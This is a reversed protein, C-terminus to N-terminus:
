CAATRFQIPSSDSDGSRESIPTLSVKRTVTPPAPEPLDSISAGFAYEEKRLKQELSSSRSSAGSSSTSSSSSSAFLTITNDQTRIISSKRRFLSSSANSGSSASRKQEGPFEFSLSKSRGLSGTRSSGGSSLSRFSVGDLDYDYDEPVVNTEDLLNNYYEDDHEDDEANGDNRSASFNYAPIHPIKLVLSPRRDGGTSSSSSSSSTKSNESNNKVVNLPGVPQLIPPDISNDGYERFLHGCDEAVGDDDLNLEDDLDGEEDDYYYYNEQYDEPSTQPTPKHYNVSLNRGIDQEEEFSFMSRADSEDKEKQGEPDPDPDPTPEISVDNDEEEVTPVDNSVKEFSDCTSPQEEVSTLASEGSSRSPQQVIVPSSVNASSPSATPSNTGWEHTRTGYIIGAERYQDMSLCSHRRNSIEMEELHNGGSARRLFSIPNLKKLNSGGGVPSVTKESNTGNNNLRPLFDGQLSLRTSSPSSPVEDKEGYHYQQETGASQSRRHSRWFSRM